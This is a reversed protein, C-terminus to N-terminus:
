AIALCRLLTHVPVPIHILQYSAIKVRCSETDTPNYGTNRSKGTERRKSRLSFENLFPWFRAKPWARFNQSAVIM